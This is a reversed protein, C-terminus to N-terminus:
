RDADAGKELVAGCGSPTWHLMDAFRYGTRPRDAAEVALGAPAGCTTVWARLSVFCRRSISPLKSAGPPNRRHLTQQMWLRSSSSVDCREFVGTDDETVWM